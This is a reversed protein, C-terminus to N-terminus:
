LRERGHASVAPVVPGRRLLDRLIALAGLALFAGGVVLVIAGIGSVAALLGTLRRRGMPLDFRGEGSAPERSLGRSPGPREGAVPRAPM